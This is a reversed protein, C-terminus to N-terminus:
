QPEVGLPDLLLTSGGDTVGLIRFTLLFGTGHFRGLFRIPQPFRFPTEGIMGAALITTEDDIVPQDFRAQASVTARDLTELEAPALDGERLVVAIAALDSESIRTPEPGLRALVQRGERRRAEGATIISQASRRISPERIAAALSRAEEPRSEAISRLLLWRLADNGPYRDLLQRALSEAEGSRDLHLLVVTRRVMAGPSVGAPERAVSDRRLHREFAELLEFSFPNAEFAEEFLQVRETRDHTLRLLAELAVPEGSRRRLVTRFVERAEDARGATELLLGLRLRSRIDLSVWAAVDSRVSSTVEFHESRAARTRIEEFRSDELLQIVSRLLTEAEATAGDHHRLLAAALAHRYIGVDLLNRPRPDRAANEESIAVATRAAAIASAHRDIKGLGSAYLNWLRPSDASIRLAEEYLLWARGTEGSLSHAFALWGTATAYDRLDGRSWSIARQETAIEIARAQHAAATDIENRSRHLEALNLHAAMVKLPDRQELGKEAAAIEYDTAVWSSQALLQGAITFLLALLLVHRTM